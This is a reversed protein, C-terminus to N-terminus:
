YKAKVLAKKFECDKSSLFSNLTVFLNNLSFFNWSARIDLSLANCSDLM